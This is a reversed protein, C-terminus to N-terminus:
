GGDAAGEASITERYAQREDRSARRASIIRCRRERWTFAAMLLMGDVFGFAQFRRERYDRRRDELVLVRENEWIRIARVFDVGHKALNALRKREDWEFDM